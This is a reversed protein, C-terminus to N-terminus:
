RDFIRLKVDWFLTTPASIELHSM